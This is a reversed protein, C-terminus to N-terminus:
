SPFCKFGQNVANLWNVSKVFANVFVYYQLYYLKPVYFYKIFVFCCTIWREIRLQSVHAAETVIRSEEEARLSIGPEDNATHSSLADSKNTWIATSWLISFKTPQDVTKSLLTFLLKRVVYGLIWCPWVIRFTLPSLKKLLILGYLM